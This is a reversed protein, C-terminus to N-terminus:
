GQFASAVSIPPSFLKKPLEFFHPRLYSVVATLSNIPSYSIGSLSDRGYYEAIAIVSAPPIDIRKRGATSKQKQNPVPKIIPTKADKV